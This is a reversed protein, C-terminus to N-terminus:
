GCGWFMCSLHLPHVEGLCRACTGQRLQASGWIPGVAGGDRDQLMLLASAAIPPTDAGLLPPVAVVSPTPDVECLEPYWREVRAVSACRHYAVRGLWNAIANKNWPVHMFHFKKGRKTCVLERTSAM